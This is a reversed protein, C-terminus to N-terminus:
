DWEVMAMLVDTNLEDGHEEQLEEILKKLKGTREAKIYEQLILQVEVEFKRKREDSFECFALVTEEDTEIAISKM